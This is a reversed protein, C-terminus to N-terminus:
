SRHRGLTPRPAVPRRRHRYVTRHRHRGRPHTREVTNIANAVARGLAELVVREREDFADPRDSCVLLVGYGGGRYSLPGGHSEGRRGDPGRGAMVPGVRRRGDSRRRRRAIRGRRVCRRETRRWRDGTRGRGRRLRRRRGMRQRDVVRRSSGATCDLRLRLSRCRGVARLSRSSKRARRRRSSCRSPTRSSVTSGSSSPRSASAPTRVERERKARNCATAANTALLTAIQEDADDFGRGGDDRHLARRPRRDFYMVSKVPSRDHEDDYTQVDDYIAPEGSVFVEGVPGENLGYAPRESMEETTANTSAVPVLEREDADYLRFVCMDFGLTRKAADTTIRAVTERSPAQMLSRSDGPTADATGPTARARLRGRVVGVTGSFEGDDNALATVFLECPVRDGAKTRITTRVTVTASDATDPWQSALKREITAATRADVLIEPESGLLEDARYGSLEVMADNVYSCRGDADLTYVGDDLAELIAAYQRLTAREGASVTAPGSSPTADLEANGRPGTGARRGGRPPLTATSPRSSVSRSSPTAETEGAQVVDTAGAALLSRVTEGDADGFAVVPVPCHEAVTRVSGENPGTVVCDVPEDWPPERESGIRAVDRDSLAATLDEIRVEDNGLRRHAGRCVKSTLMLSRLQM